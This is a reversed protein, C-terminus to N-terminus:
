KSDKNEASRTMGSHQSFSTRGSTGSLSPGSASRVDSNLLDVLGRLKGGILFIEWNQKFMGTAELPGNGQQGFSIRAMNTFQDEDDSIGLQLGDQCEGNRRAGGLPAEYLSM